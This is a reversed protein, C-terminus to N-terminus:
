NLARILHTQTVLTQGYQHNKVSAVCSFGLAQSCGLAILDFGGCYSGPMLIKSLEGTIAFYLWAQFGSSIKKFVLCANTYFQSGTKRLIQTNWIGNM